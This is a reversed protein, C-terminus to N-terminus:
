MYYINTIGVLIKLTQKNPLIIPYIFFKLSFIPFFNKKLTNTQIFLFSFLHHPELTKEGFEGFFKRELIYSFQHSFISSNLLCFYGHGTRKRRRKKKKRKEQAPCTAKKKKKRQVNSKEKKSKRPLPPVNGRKKKRKKGKRSTAEKRKKEKKRKKKKKKLPPHSIKKKKPFM